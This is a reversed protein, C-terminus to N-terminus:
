FVNNKKYEELRKKFELKRETIQRWKEEIEKKRKANIWKYTENLLHEDDFLYKADDYKCLIRNIIVNEKNILKHEVYHDMSMGYKLKKCVVTFDKDALYYEYPKADNNRIVVKFRKGNDLDYVDICKSYPLIMSLLDIKHMLEYRASPQWTFIEAENIEENIIKDIDLICCTTTSIPRPIIYPEPAIMWAVVDNYATYFTYGDDGNLVGFTNRLLTEKCYKFTNDTGNKCYLCNEFKIGDTTKRAVILKDYYDLDTSPLTDKTKNWTKSRLSPIKTWAIVKRLPEYCYKDVDSEESTLEYNENYEITGFGQGNIYEAIETYYRYDSDGSAATCLVYKLNEEPLKESVPVWNM